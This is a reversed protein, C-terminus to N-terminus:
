INVVIKKNLAPCEVLVAQMPRNRILNGITSLESGQLHFRPDSKRRMKTTHESHLHSSM